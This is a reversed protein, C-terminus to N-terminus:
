RKQLVVTLSLGFPFRIFREIKEQVPILYKDYFRGQNSVLRNGKESKLKVKLLKFFIFSGFVGIPDQYWMDVIKFKDLDIASKLSDKNYRRYHGVLTDHQSFLVPLAPVEILLHGGEDLLDCLHDLAQRDNEIHELVHIMTITDFKGYETTTLKFLDEKSFEVNDSFRYKGHYMSYLTESPEISLLNEFTNNKDILNTFIRNGSGVELIRRGIYKSVLNYQYRKYNSLVIGDINKGWDMGHVYKDVEKKSSNSM